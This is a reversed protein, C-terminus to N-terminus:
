NYHTGQGRLCCHRRRHRPLHEPPQAQAVRHHDRGEEAHGDRPVPRDAVLRLADQQAVEHHVARGHDGLAEEEDGLEERQQLERRHAHHVQLGGVLDQLAEERVGLLTLVRRPVHHRAEHRARHGDRQGGGDRGHQGEEPVHVREDAGETEQREVEGHWSEEVVDGELRGLLSEHEPEVRSDGDDERPEGDDRGDRRHPLNGQVGFSVLKEGVHSSLGFELL